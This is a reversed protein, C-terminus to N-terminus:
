DESQTIRFGAKLPFHDSYDISRDLEFDVCQISPSYFINDIRLFFLLFSNFSFGFGNGQMEFANELHNKLTIYSFSYPLDNLDGSLIVHRHPSELIHQEIARIQETRRVAGDEFRELVAWFAKELISQNKLAEQDIHMSQLHLNYVRVTDQGWLADIFIAGNATKKDFKVEGRQVIPHKSFIAMGFEAKINDRSIIKFHHQYNRQKGIKELTNYVSYDPANYFEQLCKFDSDDASIWDIMKISSSKDEKEYNEYANFIHTNYNLVKLQPAEQPWLSLAYTYFLFKYGVLLCILSYLTLQFRKRWIWFLAFFLLLIQWAPISLALLSVWSVITPPVFATCYALLAAICVFRNIFLVFRVRARRHYVKKKDKQTLKAIKKREM